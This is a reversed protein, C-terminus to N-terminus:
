STTAAPKQKLEYGLDHMCKRMLDQELAFRETDPSAPKVSIVRGQPDVLVQPPGRLPARQRMASSRAEATCRTQDRMLDEEAVGSKQWELPACGSLALSALVLTVPAAIHRRIRDPNLM